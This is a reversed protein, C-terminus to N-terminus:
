VSCRRFDWLTSCSEALPSLVGHFLNGLGACANTVPADFKPALETGEDITPPM